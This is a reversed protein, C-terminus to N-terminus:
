YKAGRKTAPKEDKMIKAFEALRDALKDREAEPLSSLEDVIKQAWPPVAPRDHLVNDVNVNESLLIMKFFNLTTETPIVDGTIFGNIGARSKGLRRGAEAQSWGSKEFLEIFEAKRPHM